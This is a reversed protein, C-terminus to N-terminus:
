QGSIGVTVKGSVSIVDGIRLVSGCLLTFTLDKGDPTAFTINMPQQIENLPHYKFHCFSRMKETQVGDYQNSSSMAKVEHQPLSQFDALFAKVQEAPGEVRLRLM